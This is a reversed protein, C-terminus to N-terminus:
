KTRFRDDGAGSEDKWVLQQEKPAIAANWKEWDESPLQRAQPNGFLTPAEQFWKPHTQEDDWVWKALVVITIGWSLRALM